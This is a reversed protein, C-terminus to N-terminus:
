DLREIVYRIYMCYQDVVAVYTPFAEVYGMIHAIALINEGEGVM